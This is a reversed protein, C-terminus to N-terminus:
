PDITQDRLTPNLFYLLIGRGVRDGFRAPSTARDSPGETRTSALREELYPVLPTLERLRDSDWRSLLETLAQDIEEQSYMNWEDGREVPIHEDVFKRPPKGTTSISFVFRCTRLAQV